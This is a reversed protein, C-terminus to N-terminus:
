RWYGWGRYYYPHRVYYPNGYAYPWYHGGSYYHYYRCSHWWSYNGLGLLNACTWGPQWPMGQPPQPAPVEGRKRAADLQGQLEAESPVHFPAAMVNENLRDQLARKEDPSLSWAPNLSSSLLLIIAVVIVKSVFYM